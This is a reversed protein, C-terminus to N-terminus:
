IAPGTFMALPVSLLLIGSTGSPIRTGFLLQRLAPLLLSNYFLFSSEYPSSYSGPVYGCPYSFFYYRFTNIRLGVHESSNDSQSCLWSFLLFAAICSHLIVIVKLRSVNNRTVSRQSVVPPYDQSPKESLFLMFLICVLAIQGNEADRICHQFAFAM